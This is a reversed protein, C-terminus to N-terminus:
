SSKLQLKVSKLSFKMDVFPSPLAWHCLVLPCYITNHSVNHTATKNLHAQAYILLLLYKSFLMKFLYKKKSSIFSIMGMSLMKAGALHNGFLQKSFVQFSTNGYISDTVRFTNSM